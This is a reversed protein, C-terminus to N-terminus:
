GASLGGGESRDIRQAQEQQQTQRPAQVPKPPNLIRERRAEDAWEARFCGRATVAAVTREIVSGPEPVDPGSAELVKLELRAGGYLIDDVQVKVRAEITRIQGDEGATETWAIRDGRVPEDCPLRCFDTPVSEHRALELGRLREDSWLARECGALLLSGATYAVLEGPRLPTNPGAAHLIRLQLEDDPRLGGAAGASVVVAEIMGAGSGARLRDGPVLPEEGTWRVTRESEPLRALRDIERRIAEAVAPRGAAERSAAPDGSKAPADVLRAVAAMEQWERDRALWGEVRQRAPEPLAELSTLEEALATAGAYGDAHLALTDGETAQAGVEDALAEFRDGRDQMEAADLRDLVERVRGRLRPMDALRRAARAEAEDGGTEGLLRRGADRIGACGDQWAATEELSVPAVGRSRATEEIAERRSLHAGGTELFAAVPGPRPGPAPTGSGCGACPASWRRHYAPSM